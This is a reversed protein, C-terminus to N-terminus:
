FGRIRKRLMIKHQASVRQWLEAIREVKLDFRELLMRSLAEPTVAAEEKIASTTFAELLGNTLRVVGDDTLRMCILNQVFHSEASTALWDNQARFDQLEVPIEMFDYTMGDYRHNHFRWWDGDRTLHFDFRTDNHTGTRLPLPTLPGNGFGVDALYPQQELRVILALHNIPAAARKAREVSAGVYDVNFGIERLAWGFLGNMEFCWGGHRAVVIKDYIREVDLSPIRGFQVELNEFPVALLHARHLAHLTQRSPSLPGGYNIRRLYAHLRNM